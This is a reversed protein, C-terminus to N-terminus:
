TEESGGPKQKGLTVEIHASGELAKPSPQSQNTSSMAVQLSAAPDSPDARQVLECIVYLDGPSAAIPLEKDRPNIFLRGLSEPTPPQSQQDEVLQGASENQRAM